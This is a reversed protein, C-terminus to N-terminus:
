QSREACWKCIEEAPRPKSWFYGQGVQVGLDRLQDIQGEEEVGEAVVPVGLANAMGTSAMFAIQVERSDLRNTMARDIKLEDIPWDIVQQIASAGQSFDDISLGFGAETIKKLEQAFAVPSEAAVSETETVELIFSSPSLGARQVLPLLDALVAGEIIESPEVNLSLRGGEPLLDLILQASEMARGWLLVSLSRIVGWEKAARVFLDPRVFEGPSPEWRALAEAGVMVGDILRIKPQWYLSLQNPTEALAQALRSPLLFEDEAKALDLYIESDTAVRSQDRQNLLEVLSSVKEVGHAHAHARLADGDIALYRLMGVPQGVFESISARLEEVVRNVREVVGMEGSGAPDDKLLTILEGAAGFQVPSGEVVCGQLCSLAWDMFGETSSFAEPITVRILADASDAYGEIRWCEELVQRISRPRNRDVAPDSEVLEVARAILQDIDWPKEFFDQVGLQLAARYKERDSFASSIIIPVSPAFFRAHQIFALGNMRPMSIDTVILDPVSAHLADMGDLGDGAVSVSFGANRFFFTLNALLLEDDEVLLVSRTTKVRSM